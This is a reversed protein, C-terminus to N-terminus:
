KQKKPTESYYSSEDFDLHFLVSLWLETANYLWPPWSFLMTYLMEIRKGQLEPVVDHYRAYRADAWISVMWTFFAFAIWVAAFQKQYDRVCVGVVAIPIPLFAGILGLFILAPHKGLSFTAGISPLM